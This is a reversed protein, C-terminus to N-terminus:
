PAPNITVPLNYTTVKNAVKDRATLVVTFKGPRNLYLPFRLSIIGDKEDVGSQVVQKLPEALIPAGKEDLFQYEHEVRPQKTKPDRDFSVITFQVILGQGVIGANPASLKGFEDYSTYVGVIGFEKRTVEFKTSASTKAGSKPDEVAVEMQYSGPDQDLGILIYARAPVANGRLPIFHPIEQPAREFIVKGKADTVKTSMKFVTNGTADISLGSIDFALFLIDGPIFKASDRAPGLEGVTIRVNNLKLAGGQAPVATLAALALSYFM